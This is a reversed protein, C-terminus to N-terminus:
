LACMLNFGALEVKESELIWNTYVYVIHKRVDGVDCVM